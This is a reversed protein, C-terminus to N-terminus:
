LFDVACEPCYHEWIGQQNQICYWDEDELMSIVWKLEKTTTPYKETIGCGNCKVECYFEISM